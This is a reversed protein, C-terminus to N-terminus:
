TIASCYLPTHTYTMATEMTLTASLTSCCLMGWDQASYHPFVKGNEKELNTQKKTKIAKLRGERARDFESLLFLHLYDHQM